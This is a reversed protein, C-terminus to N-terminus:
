ANQVGSMETEKLILPGLHFVLGLVLLGVAIPLAEEESRAMHGEGALAQGGRLGSFGLAILHLSMLFDCLALCGVPPKTRECLLTPVLQRDPCFLLLAPLSPRWAPCQLTLPGAAHPTAPPLGACVDPPASDASVSERKTDAHPRPWGRDCLLVCAAETLPDLARLGAPPSRPPRGAGLQFRLLSSPDM